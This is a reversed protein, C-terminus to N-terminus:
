LNYQSYESKQKVYISCEIIIKGIVAIISILSSFIFLRTPDHENRVDMATVMAGRRREMFVGGRGMDTAQKESGLPFRTVPCPNKDIM